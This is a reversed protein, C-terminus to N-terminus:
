RGLNELVPRSDSRVNFKEFLIIPIVNKEWQEALTVKEDMEDFKVM